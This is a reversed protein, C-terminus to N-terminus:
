RFPYWRARLELANVGKDWGARVSSVHSAELGVTWASVDIAYGLSLRGYPNRAADEIANSYLTQGDVTTVIPARTITVDQRDQVLFGGDVYLNALSFCTALTALTCSM